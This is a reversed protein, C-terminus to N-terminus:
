YKGGGVGNRLSEYAHRRYAAGMEELSELYFALEDKLLNSTFNGLGQPDLELGSLRRGCATLRVFQNSIRTIQESSCEEIVTPLPVISLESIWVTGRASGPELDFRLATLTGSWLWQNSM